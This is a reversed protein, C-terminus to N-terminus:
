KGGKVRKLYYDAIEAKDMSSIDVVEIPGGDAGTHETAVKESYGHKGLVLKTIAANFEGCLGNGILVREQESQIEKLIASFEAKDKENGWARITDRCTGLWHALGVVSPIMDGQSKYEILYARTRECTEENYKSPRGGPM